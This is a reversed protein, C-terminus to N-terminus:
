NMLLAGVHSYFSYYVFVPFPFASSILQFCCCCSLRVTNGSSLSVQSSIDQSWSAAEVEGFSVIFSRTFLHILQDTSPLSRFFLQQLHNNSNNDCWTPLTAHAAANRTYKRKFAAIVINTIIFKRLFIFLILSSSSSYSAGAHCLDVWCRWRVAGVVQWSAPGSRHECNALLSFSLSLGRSLPLSQLLSEAQKRLAKGFRVTYPSSSTSSKRLPCWLVSKSDLGALEYVRSMSEDLQVRSKTAM